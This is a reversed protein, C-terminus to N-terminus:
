VWEARNQRIKVKIFTMEVFHFSVQQTYTHTDSDHFISGVRPKRGTRRSASLFYLLRESRSLLLLMLSSCSRKRGMLWKRDSGESSEQSSRDKLWIEWMWLTLGVAATGDSVGSRQGVAPEEERPQLHQTLQALQAHQVQVGVGDEDHRLHVDQPRQRVQVGDRQVAVDDLRLLAVPTAERKEQIEPSAAAAAINSNETWCFRM